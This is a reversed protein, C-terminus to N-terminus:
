IEGAVMIVQFQAADVATDYLGGQDSLGSKGNAGIPGAPQGTRGGARPVQLGM